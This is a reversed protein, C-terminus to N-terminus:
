KFNSQIKSSNLTHFVVNGASVLFGMDVVTGAEGFIKITHQAYTAQNRSIGAFPCLRDLAVGRATHPFADLYVGEAEEHYSAAQLCYLRLIKGFVSQESTDIDEGFLLKARNIQLTLIEDYTLRQFGNETLPM